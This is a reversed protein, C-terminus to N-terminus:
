PEVGGTQGSRGARAAVSARRTRRAARHERILGGGGAGLGLVGGLILWSGVSLGALMAASSIAVLASALSMDPVTRLGAARRRVLRPSILIALGILGAAAAAGAQVLVPLWQGGFAAQLVALGGLLLAWFVFPAASPRWPADEGPARTM